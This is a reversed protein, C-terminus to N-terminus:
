IISQIPFVEAVAWIFAALERAIAVIVVQSKKGRATLRRYRDCLRVQAKWAIERVASSLGLHREFIQKSIRAPARYSWAAEVLVRRVHQNGTKTIGGRRVTEGSSHESPILGLYAM